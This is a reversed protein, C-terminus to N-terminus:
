ELYIKEIAFRASGYNYAGSARIALTFVEVASINYDVDVDGTTSQTHVKTGCNNYVNSTISGSGIKITIGCTGGDKKGGSTLYGVIRLKSYGDNTITAYLDSDTYGFETYAFLEYNGNSNVSFSSTGGSTKQATKFIFGAHNGSSDLLAQGGSWVENYSTGDHDLMKAAEYFSTGDHDFVKGHEYYSTGDYDLSPM